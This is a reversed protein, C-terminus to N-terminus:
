HKFCHVPYHVTILLCVCGMMFRMLDCFLFSICVQTPNAILMVQTVPQSGMMSNAPPVATSSAPQLKVQLAKPVAAQFSLGTIPAAGLNVASIVVVAINPHPPNQGFAFSLRLNNKDYITTPPVNGSQISALPVTVSEIPPMPAAAVPAASNLSGFMDLASAGATPSLNLGGLMDLGSSGMAAPPAAVPSPGGFMGMLDGGGMAAPTAQASSASPM